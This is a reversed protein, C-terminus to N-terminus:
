GRDFVARLQDRGESLAEIQQDGPVLQERGARVNRVTAQVQRRREMRFGLAGQAFAGFQSCHRAIASRQWRRHTRAQVLLQRHDPALAEGAVDQGDGIEGTAPPGAAPTARCRAQDAIGEAQGVDIRQAPAQEEGAEEAIRSDIRGVDVDVERPVLAVRHERRCERGIAGVVDRHDRGVVAQAAIARHAGRCPGPAHGHGLRCRHDAPERGLAAVGRGGVEAFRPRPDKGRGGVEDAQGEVVAQVAAPDDDGALGQALQHRHVACGLLDVARVSALRHGRDGPFFVAGLGHAQDLDVEEAIARQRHDAVADVVEAVLADVEVLGAPPRGVIREGALDDPTARGEAAEVDFRRRHALKLGLGAAAVEVAQDDVRRDDARGGVVPDVLVDATQVMDAGGARVAWLPIRMRHQAAQEGLGVADHGVLLVHHEDGTGEGTEVLGPGVAQALREAVPVGLVPQEAVPLLEAGSGGGM